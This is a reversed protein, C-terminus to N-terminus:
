ADQKGDTPLLSAKMASNEVGNPFTNWISQRKSLLMIFTSGGLPSTSRPESDFYLNIIGKILFFNMRRESKLIGGLNWIKSNWSFFRGESRM